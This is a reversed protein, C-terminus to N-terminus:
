YCNKLCDNRILKKITRLFGHFKRGTEMKKWKLSWISVFNSCLSFFFFFGFELIYFINIFYELSNCQFQIQYIIARAFKINIQLILTHFSFHMIFSKEFHFLMSGQASPKPIFNTCNEISLEIECSEPVSLTQYNLEFVHRCLLKCLLIMLNGYNLCLKWYKNLNKAINWDNSFQKILKRTHSIAWWTAKKLKQMNGNGLSGCVQSQM